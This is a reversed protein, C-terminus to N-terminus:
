AIHAIPQQAQERVVAFTALQQRDLDTLGLGHAADIVLDLVAWCLSLCSTEGPFRGIVKTRRRVEELSRELLNTSRFRKRLRPLYRLHSCLAPLDDALCAAASPYRRELEGVIVRLRHEADAPDTAEELAAWYAQKLHERQELHRKPLKALVNRLKHVTCRGREADPWLEEVASILGPAGDTVVLWPCSLGRRTLDRGLDLWDERSERQGLRVALLVREGSLRYGWAVLVGEKSGSPRTPLYVADLYLALLGVEALSKACFAAYRARLERCVQSAANKSLHGLGAEDLLSEIDRDSLGRVYAGIVLAELPRTRVVRRVDPIVRSVFREVTGRVQPMAVTIEGEATQISKSRSGNRSGTAASTREYRSRSLFASVEDEVARQLVLRTGLRGLEALQANDQVGQSLLDAIQAELAASPAIREM